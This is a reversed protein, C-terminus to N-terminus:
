KKDSVIFVVFHLSGAQSTAKKRDELGIIGKPAHLGLCFDHEEALEVPCDFVSGDIWGSM